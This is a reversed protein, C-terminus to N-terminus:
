YFVCCGALRHGAVYTRQCRPVARRQQLLGDSDGTRRAWLLLGAAAASHSLCVSLRGVAACVGSGIDKNPHRYIGAVIYKRNNASVELWLIEVKNTSTFKYKDMVISSFEDKISVDM